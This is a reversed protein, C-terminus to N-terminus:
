QEPPEGIKQRAATQLMQTLPQVRTAVVAGHHDPQVANHDLRVAAGIGLAESVGDIDSHVHYHVAEILSDAVPEHAHNAGDARRQAPIAVFRAAQSRGASSRWITIREWIM